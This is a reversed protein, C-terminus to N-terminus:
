SLGELEVGQFQLLRRGGRELMVDPEQLDPRGNDAMSVGRCAKGLGVLVFQFGMGTARNKHQFSLPPNLGGYEMEDRIMM